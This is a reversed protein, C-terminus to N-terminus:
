WPASVGMRNAIDLGSSAGDEHFGFRTYAGCFWTNNKGQILDLKGQAIVSPPDYVPHYFVHRDFIDQEAIARPPNLTVFVPYREDIQQLKNMWYTVGIAATDPREDAHYIWSSWCRRRRPMLSQDKHLYAINEQLRFAGLVTHEAASADTLLKLAEGGHCALVVDDYEATQGQKDAIHIKGGARIISTATCCTRIRDQYSATLKDIYVRSGGKVTRWQPQQTVTLLGHAQFFDVFFKAPFDLMANLPCSWIAGGMPLIYFKKFWDGLKLLDILQGLTVGPNHASVRLAARNFRLIDGLFRYFEPRLLNRRQAFLANLNQAGWELSGDEAKVGFTMATEATAIDLRRFLASLNPYNKENYVIFGTDVSLEKDGHKIARTRAHGGIYDNKEYLTITHHPHLAFAACMGSIGGGVIAINRRASTM